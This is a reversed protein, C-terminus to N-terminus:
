KAIRLFLTEFGAASSAGACSRCSNETDLEEMAAQREECETL